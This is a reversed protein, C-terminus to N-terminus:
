AARRRPLAAAQLIRLTTIELRELGRPTAARLVRPPTRLWGGVFADIVAPHIYSARCVARTNGLRNAVTDIAALLQRKSAAASAPDEGALLAATMLRTGAWTRFDKATFDTGSIERLYDNVDGSGIARRKGREDLYQFLRQGPIEQCNRVVRALHRDRLGVEHEKGSKGRFRFRLDSGDIEVHQDLLTTLGFHRNSRAYEDSGVRICTTELLRVVTALVKRRPLGPLRLDNAVTRRLRPLSQAFEIMRGFKTRDRIERWRAHYRYQKRGRADRGTAQIHGDARPCIWVDTWAPPIVLSRIRKLTAADTVPRARAGARLYRFGNKGAKVRTIGAGEDSVYRLRAKAAAAAPDVPGAVIPPRDEALLRQLRGSVKRVARATGRATAAAMAPKPKV